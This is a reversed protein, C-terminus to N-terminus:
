AFIALIPQMTKMLPLADDISSYVYITKRHTKHYSEQGKYSKIENGSIFEVCPVLDNKLSELITGTANAIGGIGREIIVLTKIGEDTDLFDLITEVKEAYNCALWYDSQFLM